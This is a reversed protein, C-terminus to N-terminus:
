VYIGKEGKFFWDKNLKTVDIKLKIIKDAWPFKTKRFNALGNLNKRIFSLRSFLTLAM